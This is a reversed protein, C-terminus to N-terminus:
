PRGSQGARAMARSVALLEEPAVTPDVPGQTTILTVPDQLTPSAEALEAWHAARAILAGRPVPAADAPGRICIATMGYHGLIGSLAAVGDDGDFMVGALVDIEGLSRLFSQLASRAFDADRGSQRALTAPSPVAVLTAPPDARGLAALTRLGERAALRPTEDAAALWAPPVDLCEAELGLLASARGLARGLADPRALLASMPQQELRGLYDGLRPV